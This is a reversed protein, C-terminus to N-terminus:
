ARRGLKAASEQRRANELQEVRKRLDAIETVAGNVSALLSQRGTAIYRRAVDWALAAVAIVSAAIALATM